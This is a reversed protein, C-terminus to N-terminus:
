CLLTHVQSVSIGRKCICSLLTPLLPYISPFINPRQTPPSGRRPTVMNNLVLDTFSVDKSQAIPLHSSYVSEHSVRMRQELSGKM